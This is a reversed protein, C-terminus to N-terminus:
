SGSANASQRESRILWAIGVAILAGAVVLTLVFELKAFMLGARGGEFESFTGVHLSQDYLIAMIVLIAVGTGLVMKRATALKGRHMLTEAARFGVWFSANVLAVVLALTAYGASGEGDFFFARADFFYNWEWDPFRAMFFLIIPSLITSQFLLGKALVRDRNQVANGQDNRRAVAISAGVLFSIPADITIM